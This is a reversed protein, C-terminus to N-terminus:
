EEKTFIKYGCGEILEGKEGPYARCYEPRCKYNICHSRQGHMRLFACKSNIDFKKGYIWCKIITTLKKLPNFTTWLYKTQCCKGCQLCQGSRYYQKM